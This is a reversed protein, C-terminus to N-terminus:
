VFYEDPDILTGDPRIITHVDMLGTATHAQTVYILVCSERTLRTKSHSLTFIGTPTRFITQPTHDFEGTWSDLVHNLYGAVREESHFHRITVCGSDFEPDLHRIFVSQVDALKIDAEKVLSYIPPAEMDSAMIGGSETPEWECGISRVLQPFKVGTTPCVFGQRYDNFFVVKTTM